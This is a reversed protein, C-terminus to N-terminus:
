LPVEQAEQTSTRHTLKGFMSQVRDKSKHNVNTRGPPSTCEEGSKDSSTSKHRPNLLKKLNRPSDLRKRTTKARRTKASYDRRSPKDGNITASKLSSEFVPSDCDPAGDDNRGVVVFEELTKSKRMKSEATEIEPLTLKAKRLIKSGEGEEGGERDGGKEEEEEEEEEDETKLGEKSGGMGSDIINEQSSREAESMKEDESGTAITELEDSQYSVGEDEDQNSKFDLEDVSRLCVFFFM